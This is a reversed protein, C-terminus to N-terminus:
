RGPASPCVNCIGASIKPFGSFRVRSRRIPRACWAGSKRPRERPSSFPGRAPSCDYLLVGLSYIDTATTIPEGRVQEPSACEPTMLRMSAMTVDVDSELLKLLGATRPLGAMWCARSIRTISPPSIQREHRFRRLIFKTDMGRKVVKVAVQKEFDSTRVARYVTGMGGEALPERIEYSGIRSGLPLEERESELVPTELFDGLEDYAALLRTVDHCLTADGHCAERIYAGRQDAELDVCANVIDKVRPWRKLPM